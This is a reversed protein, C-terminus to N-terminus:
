VKGPEHFRCRPQALFSRRDARQLGQQPSRSRIEMSREHLRCEAKPLALCILLLYMFCAALLKMGKLEGLAQPQHRFKALHSDLRRKKKDSGVAEVRGVIGVKDAQRDVEGM